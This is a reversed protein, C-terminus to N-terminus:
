VSDQVSGFRVSSKSSVLQDLDFDLGRAALNDRLRDVNRASLRADLDLSVQVPSQPANESGSSFLSSAPATSYSRTVWPLWTRCQCGAHSPQLDGSTLASCTYEFEFEFFDKNNM